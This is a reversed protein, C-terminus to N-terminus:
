GVEKKMWIHPCGEDDEIEGYAVYGSKEYFGKAQCQAHLSLFKGGKSAVSKEAALLMKSGMNKGRYSPIVALRGLIYSGDMDGKFIRCTAIPLSNENYMVIHSAYGDVTDFENQFGQEDMFVAKRISKADDCLFDYKKINESM